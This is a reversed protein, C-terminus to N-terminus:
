PDSRRQERRITSMVQRLTRALMGPQIASLVALYAAAGAVVSAVLALAPADDDLAVAV